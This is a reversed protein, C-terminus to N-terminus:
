EGGEVFGAYSLVNNYAICCGGGINSNGTYENYRYRELGNSDTYKLYPRAIVNKEKDSDNDYTIVMSYLRYGGYKKHDYKRHSAEAESDYDISTCNVNTVFRYDTDITKKSGTTNVGNVNEGKYKLKYDNPIADNEGIGRYHEAFKHVLDQRTVLYGYEVNTGDVSGDISDIEDLLTQNLSTIFRLGEPKTEGPYNSDKGAARLQVGMLGYGSYSGSIINGDYSDKAVDTVTIWHAYLNTDETITFPSEIPNGNSKYWGKFVRLNGEAPTAAYLQSLSLKNKGEEKSVYVRSDPEFADESSYFSVVYETENVTITFKNNEITLKDAPITKAGAGKGLTVTASNLTITYVGAESGTFTTGSLKSETGTSYSFTPNVTATDSGSYDTTLLYSTTAGKNITASASAFGATLEETKYTMSATVVNSEATGNIAKVAIYKTKGDTAIATNFADAINITVTGNDYSYDSSTVDTYTGFSAAAEATDAICYRYTQATSSGKLTLLANGTTGYVYSAINNTTGLYAPDSTDASFTVASVTENNEVVQEAIPTTAGKYGVIRYFNTYKSTVDANTSLDATSDMVMVQGSALSAKEDVVVWSQTNNSKNKVEILMHYGQRIAEMITPAEASTSYTGTGDYSTSVKPYSERGNIPSTFKLYIKGSADSTYTTDFELTNSVYDNVKSWLLSGDSDLGSNNALYSRLDEPTFNTDSKVGAQVFMKAVAVICAGNDSMTKSTGVANNAWRGDYRSWRRYDFDSSLGPTTGGKFSRITEYTSGITSLKVSNASGVQTCRWGWIENKELSTKEDIAVDETGGGTLNVRVAFHYGDLIGQSILPNATSASTTTNIFANNSYNTLGCGSLVTAADILGSSNYCDRACDAVTWTSADRLGAQVALKAIAQSLTYRGALDTTDSSTGFRVGDWRPDTQTWYRYDNETVGSSNNAYFTISGNDFRDLVFLDKSPYDSLTIDATVNWTTGNITLDAPPLTAADGNMRAFKVKNQVNEFKILGNDQLTGEVFRGDTNTNWTWAYLYTDNVPSAKKNNTSVANPYLYVTNNVLSNWSGALNNYGQGDNWGTIRYVKDAETTLNATQNEKADWSPVVSANKNMRVFNVKENVGSFKLYGTEDDTVGAIWEGVGEAAGNAYTWAYWVDNSQTFNSGSDNGSADLYVVTEPKATYEVTTTDALYFTYTDTTISSDDTGNVTWKDLMYDEDPTATIVIESGVKVYDGSAIADGDATATLSANTASYTVTKYSPATTFYYIKYASGTLAQSTNTSVDANSSFGYITNSNNSKALTAAEDVAYWANDATSGQVKNIIYHYGNQRMNTIMANAATSDAAISTSGSYATGSSLIDGDLASLSNWSIVGNTAGILGNDHLDGLLNCTEGREAGSLYAEKSSPVRSNNKAPLYTDEKVGAQILMKDLAVVSQGWEGMMEILSDANDTAGYASPNSDTNAATTGGVTTAPYSTIGCAWRPDKNSWQKYNDTQAYDYTNVTAVNAKQAASLTYMVVPNTSYAAIRLFRGKSSDNNRANLYGDFTDRSNTGDCNPGYWSNMVYFENYVDVDFTQGDYTISQTTTGSNRTATEDIAVWHSGTGHVLPVLHYGAQLMMSMRAQQYAMSYGDADYAFLNQYGDGSYRFMYKVKAEAVANTDGSNVFDAKLLAYDSNAGASSTFVNTSRYWWHKGLVETAFNELGGWLINSGSFSDNNDLWRIVKGPNIETPTSLGSEIMLKTISTVTCGAHGINCNASSSAGLAYYNWRHDRQCWDRMDVGTEDYFASNDANNADLNVYSSSSDVITVAEATIIGVSTMGALMLMTLLISLPRKLKKMSVVGKHLTKNIICM